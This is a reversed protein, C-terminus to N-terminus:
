MSNLKQSWSELQKVCSQNKQGGLQAQVMSNIIETEKGRFNDLLNPISELKFKASTYHEDLSLSPRELKNEFIPVLAIAANVIVRV